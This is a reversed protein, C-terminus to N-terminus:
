LGAARRAERAKRIVNHTVVRVQNPTIRLEAAIAAPERGERLMKFVQRQQPSLSAVREIEDLQKPVERLMLQREFEALDPDDASAQHEPALKGERALHRQQQGARELSRVIRPLIYPSNGGQPEYWEAFVAAPIEQDLMQRPPVEGESLVARLRPNASLNIEGRVYGAMTAGVEARLFEPLADPRSMGAAVDAHMMLGRFFGRVGAVYENEDGKRARKRAVGMSFLATSYVGHRWSALWYERVSRHGVFALKGPEGHQRARRRARKDLRRFRRGWVRRWYLGGRRIGHFLDGLVEDCGLEIAEEHIRKLDREVTEALRRVRQRHEFGPQLYSQFTDAHRM